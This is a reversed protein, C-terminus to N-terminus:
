TAALRTGGKGQKGQLKGDEECQRSGARPGAGAGPQGFELEAGGRKEWGPLCPQPVWLGVAALGPSTQVTGWGAM